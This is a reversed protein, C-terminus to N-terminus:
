SSSATRTPRSRRHRASSTTAPRWCSRSTWRSSGAPISARITAISSRTAPRGPARSRSCSTATTRAHHHVRRRRRRPRGPLGPPVEPEARHRRARVLDLRRGHDRRVRGQARAPADASGVHRRRARQQHVLGERGKGVPLQAIATPGAKLNSLQWFRVTTGLDETGSDVSPSTALSLPDAYDRPSSWTWTRASTSATRTPSCAPIPSATSARCTAPRGARSPPTINASSPATWASSSWGARRRRPEQCGHLHRAPQRQAGARFRRHRLLEQRGQGLHGAPM